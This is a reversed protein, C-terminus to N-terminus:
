TSAPAGNAQIRVRWGGDEHPTCEFTLGRRSLEALLFVPRRETHADVTGGLPMEAIAQLIRMMPEPPELGRVDLRYLFTPSM